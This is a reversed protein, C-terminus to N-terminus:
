THMLSPTLRLARVLVPSQIESLGRTGQSAKSTTETWEDDVPSHRPQHWVLGAGQSPAPPLHEHNEPAQEAQGAHKGPGGGDGGDAKAEIGNTNDDTSPASHIVGTDSAAFRV